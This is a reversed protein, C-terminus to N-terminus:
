YSFPLHPVTIAAQPSWQARSSSARSRRSTSVRQLYLLIGVWPQMSRGGGLEEEKCSGMTTADIEWGCNRRRRWLKEIEGAGLTSASRSRLSFQEPCADAPPPRLPFHSGSKKRCDSPSFLALNIFYLIPFFPYPRPGDDEVM